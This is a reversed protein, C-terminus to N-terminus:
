SAGCTEYEQTEHARKGPTEQLRALAATAELAHLLSAAYGNLTLLTGRVRLDILEYYLGRSATLSLTRESSSREQRM